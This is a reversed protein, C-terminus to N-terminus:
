PNWTPGNNFNQLINQILRNDKELHSYWSMNLYLNYDFLKSQIVYQQWFTTIYVLTLEMFGKFFNPAHVDGLWHIQIIISM